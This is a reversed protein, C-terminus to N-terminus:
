KLDYLAAYKEELYRFYYEANFAEGTARILIEDMSHLAGDHQVKEKLWAAIRAFQGSRLYEDVPIEKRMACDIQAAIASGLAYSPFYGFYAYPWHMDQMIGEESNRVEVGLYAKYKENWVKELEETSLTGEFLEREIEYRILIHIPYTVEDAETRVPSPQVANMAEYFEDLSLAGFPKEFTQQLAPYNAEWFAKTRGLHNELLRSESEHMAASIGSMIATGDYEPDVNHGYWAHGCEHVTSLVGKIIHNPRYKTTFRIDNRCIGTTLPHISEGMKGWADTYGLYALISQMYVRQVEVPFDGQIRSGDIPRAAAIKRILPLIREKMQAFFADYREMGWDAQHDRLLTEFIGGENEGKGRLRSSTLEKQLRVLERLYPEYAAYSATGKMKQWAAESVALAHHYALYLDEPVNENKEFVSLWIEAMRREAAGLDEAKVLAKLVETIKPDRQLRFAEQRLVQTCRERYARGDTPPHQNADLGIMTLAFRYAAAKEEWAHFYALLEQTSQEM